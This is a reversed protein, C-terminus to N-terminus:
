VRSAEEGLILALLKIVYGRGTDPPNTGYFFRLLAEIDAETARDERVHIIEDQKPSPVITPLTWVSEKDSSKKVKM